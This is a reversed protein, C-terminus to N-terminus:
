GSVKQYPSKKKPWAKEEKRSNKDSCYFQKSCVERLTLGIEQESAGIVLLDRTFQMLDANVEYPDLGSEKVYIDVIIILQIVDEEIEPLNEEEPASDEKAETDAEEASALEALVEGFLNIQKELFAIREFISEYGLDSLLEDPSSSSLLEKLEELESSYDSYCARFYDFSSHTSTERAVYIDMYKERTEEYRTM